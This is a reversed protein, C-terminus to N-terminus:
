VILQALSTDRHLPANDPRVTFWHLDCDLIPPEGEAHRIEVYLRRGLNIMSPVLSYGYIFPPNM